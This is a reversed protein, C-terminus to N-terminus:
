ELEVRFVNDNGNRNPIWVVGVTPPLKSLVDQNRGKAKEIFGDVNVPPTQGVDVYFVLLSKLM